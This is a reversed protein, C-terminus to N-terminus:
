KLGMSTRVHVLALRGFRVAWTGGAGLDCAPGVELIVEVGRGGTGCGRFCEVNWGHSGVCFGLREPEQVKWLFNTEDDVLLQRPFDPMVLRSVGILWGM